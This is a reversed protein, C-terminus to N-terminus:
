QDARLRWGSRGFPPRWALRGVQPRWGSRGFQAPLIPTLAAALAIVACAQAPAGFASYQGSAAHATLVGAAIMAAGAIGGLWTPWRYAIVALVPVALVLPGAVVLILGSLALLGLWAAVPRDGKATTGVMEDSVGIGTSGVTPDTGPAVPSGTSEAPEPSEPVPHRRMRIHGRWFVAIAILALALVASLIIWIHYIIVPTFSLHVIGGAGAPLLFGQQWGDLRLPTLPKGNLTAVWGANANQHVELYSAAGPGVRVLGSEAQWNLVHVARALGAGSSAATPAPGLSSATDAGTLSVDTITFPGPVAATLWHRGQGLQVVSGPTCLRVQVPLFRILDGITGMVQTQYRRGDITVQPGEGCALRFKATPSPIAPRLGALAPISLLSLGVPLTTASSAFPFSLSMRDTTLPPVIQVLGDFGIAAVRDGDPSAIQVTGPATGFLPLSAIVMQTIRRDGHWGINLVPNPGGAIWPTPNVRQLLGAPSLSPLDHWTSSATVQITNRRIPTLSGLIAALSRSPVAMAMAKLRFAAQTSTVFTRALPPYTTVDVLNAPSPVQQQFSFAVAPAEQGARDEPSELFRTVKIGPIAVNTIGAGAGGPVGGRAGAMTIRMWRTPGAPVQLPQEAQTTQVASTITGTATSVRLRDAVPRVAGDDLLMIGITDPLNVPNSFTIQIWQGVATYPNAEVWATRPNDDFVNVPDIQPSNALWSGSSSATVSAAGSLVAVTQHGRAVVPMLQRPPGGADGLPDDVPNTETATYTFSPVPDVLGFGYDARRLSDTVAWLAPTTVLPDGAIVAPQASVIQQGILQLLADPGGNVLVTDSVPLVAVPGSVPGRAADAQFVEVAPYSPELRQIQPLAGPDTQKGTILPGFAAIRRFGSALLTEHVLKPPTYDIMTPDLDNRVVVFRIGSRALLTALGGVREGSVVASELSNLLVQSGAGGYPVLSPTAWPSNALPELPEDIPEGWLFMAHAAAPVILAPANPSKSHLFDAVQYWYSPIAPYSGPNLVQGSLYPLALGASVLLAASVTVLSLFARHAPNRIADVRRSTLAHAIGLALVAAAVPELKYVNRFPGLSTNLWQEVPGHFPGGLPGPYGALAVLAALGLSWRLWRGYPMDRRAMGFLGLASTSAAALVAVPNAIMMWGASLWPKGLNLYATWNGAGRLFAAASMTGTTTAAQETYPLFNFSYRGQLLLPVVWWSTALAIAALWFAGLRLRTRGSTQTLIFVAPLVLANVTAAANVGGMCLVAVGSRAAARVLPAGRSASVLPLVAWPALMGPIIGASTSGIVITFTPWLAFALGAIARSRESGIRLAAALQVVGRYALAILLALWLRETIWVPFRLLQGALYFPAMPVAYGIYQNQLSGFWELPNWLHWLRAYFGLPDIDVGLKTDFFMLGPHNALLVVLAALWVWRTLRAASLPRPDSSDHGASDTAAGPRDLDPRDALALPRVSRSM